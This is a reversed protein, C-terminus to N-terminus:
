FVCLLRQVEPQSGKFIWLVLNESRDESIEGSSGAKVWVTERQSDHTLTVTNHRKMTTKRSKWKTRRHDESRIEKRKKKNKKTSAWSLDLNSDVTISRIQNFNTINQIQIQDSRVLNSFEPNPLIPLSTALTARCLSSTSSTATLSGKMVVSYMTCGNMKKIYRTKKHTQTKPDSIQKTTQLCVHKLIICNMTWPFMM